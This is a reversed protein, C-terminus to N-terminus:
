FNLSGPARHTIKLKKDEKNEKGKDEKYMHSKKSRQNVKPHLM